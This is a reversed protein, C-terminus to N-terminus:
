LNSHVKGFWKEELDEYSGDEFLELLILNVKEKLASGTPFVIAYNEKKFIHGVTKVTEKGQHSEYYWLVPADYVIADVKGNELLLFAGEITRQKYVRIGKNRLYKYATSGNVTAVKKGILDNPGNISGKLQHLTLTSTVTATFSAIFFLGIFMWLFAVSRGFFGRPAQDGYGVTTLTVAAWWFGDMVGKLYKPSFEEPNRHRQTLWIINGAIFLTILLIGIVFLMKLQFFSLLIDIVVDFSSKESNNAVMIQLGSDFFSYSFDMDKERNATMSIGALGVDVKNNKVEYLLKTVTDVQKIEYNINLKNAIQEWLDISFGDFENNGKPIVFPVLTKIVIKITQPSETEVAEANAINTIFLLICSLWWVKM